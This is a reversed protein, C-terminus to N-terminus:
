VRTDLAVVCLEIGQSALVVQADGQGTLSTVHIKSIVPFLNSALFKLLCSPDKNIKLFIDM